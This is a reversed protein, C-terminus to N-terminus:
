FKFDEFDVSAPTSSSVTESVPKASPPQHRSFTQDGERRPSTKLQEICTQAYFIANTQELLYAMSLCQEISSLSADFPKGDATTIGHWRSMEFTFVIKPRDPAHLCIWCKGEANKGIWVEAKLGEKEVVVNDKYIAGYCEFRNKTGNPADKLLRMFGIFTQFSVPDMAAVIAGKGNMDNVDNTYVCIRPMGDRWVWELRPSKQGEMAPKAFMSLRLLQIFKVDNALEAM